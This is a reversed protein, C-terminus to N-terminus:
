QPQLKVSVTVPVPKADPIETFQFPLPRAVVKTLLRCNVAVTGADSIEAGAVAQIETTFEVGPPPAELVTKKAIVFGVVDTDNARSSTGM